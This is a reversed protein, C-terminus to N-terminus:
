WLDVFNHFLVLFVQVGEDWEITVSHHHWAVKSPMFLLFQLVVLLLMYPDFYNYKAKVGKVQLRSPVQGKVQLRSLLFLCVNFIWFKILFFINTCMSAFVFLQVLFICAQQNINCTLTSIPLIMKHYMFNFNQFLLKIPLRPCLVYVIRSKKTM